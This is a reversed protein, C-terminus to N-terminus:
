AIRRNEFERAIFNVRQTLCSTGRKASGSRNKANIMSTDFRCLSSYPYRRELRVPPDFCLYYDYSQSSVDVLTRESTRGNTRAILNDTMRVRRIKMKWDELGPMFILITNARHDRLSSTSSARPFATLLFFCLGVAVRSALSGTRKKDTNPERLILLFLLASGYYRIEGPVCTPAARRKKLRAASFDRPFRVRLSLLLLRSRSPPLSLSLSLSRSLSLSLSLSLSFCQKAHLPSCIFLDAHV